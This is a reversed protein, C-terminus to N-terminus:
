STIDDPIVMDLKYTGRAIRILFGANMMLLIYQEITSCVPINYKERLEKKTFTDHLNVFEKIIEWKSKM